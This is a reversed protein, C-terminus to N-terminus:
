LEMQELRYPVSGYFESGYRKRVLRADLVTIIGKDTTRRILRGIGQRFKLVAEPLSYESFPSRGAQELRDGRAKILPHDPVQFPLKTIIVQSLAEGPVDVGTWFSDTGFLVSKTDKKFEHLMFNKQMGEGQVLLRWGRRSFEGRLAEACTRMHSYSTFLVFSRGDTDAILGPLIRILTEQFFQSNPEPMNVVVRFKANRPDFPSELRLSKGGVFGTRDIFHDFHGHVTLTASCLMTPIGRRFLLESLLDPINLPTGYLAIDSERMEAYYVADSLSKRRFADIGDLVAGLRSISMELESRLSNNEMSSITEGLRALLASLPDSLMDEPEESAPIVCARGGHRLVIEEYSGFFIRVEDRLTSVMGRMEAFEAGAAVLTGRGTDPNFLRNLVHLTGGRSLALGLKTAADSELTHAEDIMLAGYNPLMASEGTEDEGRMALDTFFLAHNTVILNSDAWERRAAQYYCCNYFECKPGQCNGTECCVLDWVEQQIVGPLSERDGRFGRDIEGRLMGVDSIMSALPLLMDKQEGALLEFRRRCMYNGRGKAISTKVSIGMVEQLFPIDKEVLQQQLTITETTIVACGGIQRARLMLPALYAFSKGVGTPAEVCLNTGDALAECIALAMSLQQPREEAPSGEVGSHSLLGGPSFLEACGNALEDYDPLVPEPIGFEEPLDDYGPPADGDGQNESFPIFM